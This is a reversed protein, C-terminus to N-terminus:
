HLMQKPGSTIFLCMHYKLGWVCIWGCAWVSCTKLYIVSSMYTRQRKSSRVNETCLHRQLMHRGRTRQSMSICSRESVPSLNSLLRYFYSIVQSVRWASEYRFCHQLATSWLSQSCLLPRLQQTMLHLWLKNQDWVKEKGQGLFLDQFFFCSHLLAWIQKFM